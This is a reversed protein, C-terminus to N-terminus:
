LNYKKKLFIITKIYLEQAGEKSMGKNENWAKWKTREKLNVFWPASTNNNGLTAQKYYGYCLVKEENTAPIDTKRVWESLKNFEQETNM